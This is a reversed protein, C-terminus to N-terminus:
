KKPMGTEQMHGGMMNGIWETTPRHFAVILIIAIILILITSGVLILVKRIAPESWYSYLLTRNIKRRETDSREEFCALLFILDSLRNLYKFISPNDIMGESKMKVAIRETKRVATRAVDMQASCREQGFAVFGPPLALSEEIGDILREVWNVEMDSITKRPPKSGTSCSLEAGITFLHKQVQLLIRKIRKEKSSARAVGLLANAEDLAGVAETVIHYKPVREGGLTGTYGSDGMKTSIGM